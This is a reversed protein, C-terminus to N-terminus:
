QQSDIAERASRMVCFLGTPSFRSYISKVDLVLVFVLRDGLDQVTPNGEIARGDDVRRASFSRIEFRARPLPSEQEKGLVETANVGICSNAGSLWSGEPVWLAARTSAGVFLGRTLDSHFVRRRAPVVGAPRRRASAAGKGIPDRGAVTLTRAGKARSECTGANRRMGAASAGLWLRAHPREGLLRARNGRIL